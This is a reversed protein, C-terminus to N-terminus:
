SFFEGVSPCAYLAFLKIYPILDDIKINSGPMHHVFSQTLPLGWGDANQM